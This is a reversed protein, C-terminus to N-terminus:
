ASFSRYCRLATQMDTMGGTATDERLSMQASANGWVLAEAIEKGRLAALLIGACFADEAGTTGKIYDKPLPKSPEEAFVGAKDMGFAGEPAHIVAWKRVGLRRMRLLAERFGAPILKGTRDRLELGVTRGAEVENVIVYDTFKLAPIVVLVFRGSNESVLDVSTLIGQEQVRHLLRAAATGYQEDPADLAKLLLLYGLHFLDCGLSEPQLDGRLFRRLRRWIHLIHTRQM